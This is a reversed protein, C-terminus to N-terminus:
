QPLRPPNEEAPLDGAAPEPPEEGASLEGEVVHEPEGPGGPEDVVRWERMRAGLARLHERRVDPPALEIFLKLALLLIAVDDLQGAGPVLDPLIDVPMLVYAIAAPPILKLWFSVRDDWFLRWALQLQRVVDRLWMVIANSDGPRAPVPSRQESM